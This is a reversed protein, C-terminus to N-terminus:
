RDGGRRRRRTQRFAWAIMALGGAFVLLTVTVQGSFLATLVRAGAVLAGIGGVVILTTEDAWLGYLLYGLVVALAAVAGVPSTLVNLELAAFGVTVTGITRAARGPGARLQHALALWLTGIGLHALGTLLFRDSSFTPDTLGILPQALLVLDHWGFRDSLADGFPGATYVAAAFLAVQQVISEPRRRWLVVAHAAAAVGGAAITARGYGPWTTAAALTVAAATLLTATAWAIGVVADFLRRGHRDAWLGALTLGVAAAGLIMAKQVQSITDWTSALFGGVALTVLTAGITAVLEPMREGLGRDSPSTPAHPEPM